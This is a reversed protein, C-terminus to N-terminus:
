GIIAPDGGYRRQWLGYSIVAVQNRGPSDEQDTFGRGLMPTVGFLSFFNHTVITGGVRETTDGDTINRDGPRCAAVSEFSSSQKRWETIDNYSPPLEPYGMAAIQPNTSWLVQIRNAEFYPLPRLLVANIASFIAANVGIGLALTLVATLTFGPSKRLQRLAYRLDYLLTNM